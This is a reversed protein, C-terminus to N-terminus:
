DEQNTRTDTAPGLKDGEEEVGRGEEEEEKQEEGGKDGEGDEGGEEGEGEEGEGEEGEGEEGEGEEGEGEEGEGEEGEGEDRSLELSDVTSGNNSLSLGASSGVSVTRLRVRSEHALRIEERLRQSDENFRAECLAQEAELQLRYEEVQKDLKEQESSSITQSPATFINM